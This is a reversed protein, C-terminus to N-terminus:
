SFGRPSHTRRRQPSAVGRLRPLLSGLSSLSRAMPRRLLWLLSVLLAWSAFYRPVFMLCLNLAEFGLMDKKSRMLLAFIPIVGVVYYKYVPYLVLLLLLAYLTYRVTDVAQVRRNRGIRFLLVLYVGFLAVLLIGSYYSGYVWTLSAPLLFIFVPLGLSVPANIAGALAQWKSTLWNLTNFSVPTGTGVALSWYNAPLSVGSWLSSPVSFVSGLYNSPSYFIFPISVGACIAATIAFFRVAATGRGRARWVILMMVPLALLATQKFGISVALSVASLDYRGKVLFYVSVMLFLTTLSPNLWLYDAYYLSTPALVFAAAIATSFREGVLERAILYVPIVTLADAVVLPLASSWSPLPLFSPITLAYLFLPPYPYYFDRYPVFGNRFAKAAPVYALNFDQWNEASPLSISMSTRISFLFVVLKCALAAASLALVVRFSAGSRTGGALEVL